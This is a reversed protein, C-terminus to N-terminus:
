RYPKDSNYDVHDTMLVPDAPISNVDPCYWELFGCGRCAFIELVGIGPEEIPLEEASDGFIIGKDVTPRHTLYMPASVQANMEGGRASSHERPIVRVFQLSNCRLCPRAPRSMIPM